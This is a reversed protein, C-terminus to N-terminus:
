YRRQTLRVVFSTRERDEDKAKQFMEDYEIKLSQRLAMWVNMTEPNDKPMLKGSLKYALGAIMAPKFRRPMDLTNGYNGIDQIYRIGYIILEGTTAYTDPVPWVKFTVTDRNRYTVFNIPTGTDTKSPFHLYEQMSKRFVQTDVDQSDRYIMDLIDIYKSNLTYTDVGFSLTQSVEEITWLNIGENVWEELLINLSRRAMELDYGTKSEGKVREFAEEIIELINLDFSYTNSTAM